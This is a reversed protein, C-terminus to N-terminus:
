KGRGNTHNSGVDRQHVSQPALGSDTSGVRLFLLVSQINFNLAAESRPPLGNLERIMNMASLSTARSQRPKCQWQEPQPQIAFVQAGEKAERSIVRMLVLDNLVVSVHNAPIGTLQTFYDLTPIKVAALGEQWSLSLILCALTRERDSFHFRRLEQEMFPATARLAGGEVNAINLPTNM